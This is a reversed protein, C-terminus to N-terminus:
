RQIRSLVEKLIQQYDAESYRRDNPAPKANFTPRINHNVPQSTQRYQQNVTSGYIPENRFADVIGYIVGLVLIGGVINLTNPHEEILDRFIGM